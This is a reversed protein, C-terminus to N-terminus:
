PVEGSLVDQMIENFMALVAPDGAHQDGLYDAFLESPERRRDREARGSGGRGAPQVMVDVCRQGLVQRVEDVLGVRAVSAVRARIWAEPDIDAAYSRLEELSGAVTIMPRGSTLPVATVKAPIGAEVDVVNVQQVGPQEGFDLQLPSGCYHIPAAGRVSQPRHLHGLAVYSLSAPFAQATVAYEDVLFGSREGGGPKAGVVYAHTVLVAPRESSCEAALLGILSGLRSGYTQATEYAADRMLSEASVVGRQSVFPLAALDLEGGPTEITRVGGDAPRLPKAVVHVRGLELLPAVARLMAANDHNGSIVVVEATRSLELLASYVIQTSEPGPTATEFLDGAVIVLDVSHSSAIEAIEALVARHEDARSIGRVSKGVHWDSTHLFRM